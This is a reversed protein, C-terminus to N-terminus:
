ELVKILKLYEGDEDAGDFVVKTFGKKRYLNLARENDKNVGISLENYGMSKCLDIVYDVLISGIGMGRYEKKVILRSVYIRENPITYDPDKMDFVISIEGYFKGKVEYVYTIRNGNELEKRFKETYLFKAMDYINGCKDYESIDLKKIKYNKINKKFIPMIKM